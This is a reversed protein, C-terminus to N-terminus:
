LRATVEAEVLFRRRSGPDAARHPLLRKVAVARHLVPDTARLVEGLGGRAHPAADAFPGVPGPDFTATALGGQGPAHTLTLTDAAAPTVSDPMPRDRPGAPHRAAAIITAAAPRIHLPRCLRQM